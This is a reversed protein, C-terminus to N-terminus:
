SQPERDPELMFDPELEDLRGPPAPDSHGRTGNITGDQPCVAVFAM